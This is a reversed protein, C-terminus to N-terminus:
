FLKKVDQPNYPACLGTFSDYGTMTLNGNVRDISFHARHLLDFTVDGEIREDSKLLNAVPWIAKKPGLPLMPRPVMIDPLTVTGSADDLHIRVQEAYAAVLGTSASSGQVGAKMSGHGDCLLDTAAAPFALVLMGAAMLGFRLAM